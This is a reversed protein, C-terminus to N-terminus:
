EHYVFKKGGKIYLTEAVPNAVIRGSLDYITQDEDIGDALVDEIGAPFDDTEIVNAFNSWGWAQRYKM